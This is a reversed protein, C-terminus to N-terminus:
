PRHRHAEGPQDGGGGPPCIAGPPAGASEDPSGVDLLSRSFRVVEVEIGWPAERRRVEYCRWGHGVYLREGRRNGVLLWLVAEDFGVERLERCAATLLTRGAGRGWHDPDVYLALLEGAGPVGQEGQAPGVTAFGVLGDDGLAVLTAPWRAPDHRGLEYRGVRDAPDLRDLFDQPLLGRYGKQWSRVHVRAVDWADSPRAPRLNM